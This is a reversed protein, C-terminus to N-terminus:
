FFITKLFIDKLFPWFYGFIVLVEWFVSFVFGSFCFWFVFGSFFLVLFAFGSFGAPLKQHKSIRGLWPQGIGGAGGCM